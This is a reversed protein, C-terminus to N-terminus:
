TRQGDSVWFSYGNLKLLRTTVTEILISVNSKFTHMPGRHRWLDLELGKNLLVGGQSIFPLGHGTYCGKREEKSMKFCLSSSQICSAAMACVTGVCAGLSQLGFLVWLVALSFGQHATAGFPVWLIALSFKQHATRSFSAERNQKWFSIPFSRCFVLVKCTKVKFEGMPPLQTRSVTRDRYSDGLLRRVCINKRSCCQVM